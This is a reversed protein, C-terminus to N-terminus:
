LWELHKGIGRCTSQLQQLIQQLIRVLNQSATTLYQQGNLIYGYMYAWWTWAEQYLVQQQFTYVRFQTGCSCCPPLRSTATMTHM